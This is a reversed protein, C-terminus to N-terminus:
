LHCVKKSPAVGKYYEMMKIAKAKLNEATIGFYKYVDKAPGSVGFTEIGIHYHSYKVWTAGPYPEFSLVPVTDTLVSDQYGEDQENFLQNCPMSVVRIHNDKLEKAVSIATAVESGSSVIILEPKTYPYNEYIIYAGKSVLEYSSGECPSVNQRTLILFTPKDMTKMAVAYAGAVENGDCPRIVLTNPIVRIQVLQEIPQHTPGDEGVGISDHTMIYLTPIKCLSALRVSGIAYNIFSFFTSCYPRFGGHAYLGNCIAAMGHERIGFYIFNGKRNTKSFVTNDKLYVNTSGTLDASGGVIEPMISALKNLMMGSFVRTAKTDNIPLLELLSKEWEKPLEGNIRRLLEKAKEPYKNTYNQFLIEWQKALENGKNVKSKYYAYVENDIHFFEEPNLGLKIKADKVCDKGLPAGHSSESGQKTSGYGITTNIKIISPKDTCQQSLIISQKISDLDNDGDRVEHVDWNMSEFKKLIDETFCLDTSGDITIGNSDYLVILKGLGLHGALSAAETTMGEELCGDGCIVYTYHDVLKFDPQNYNAALNAEAIAMGVGSALGQGLPGTTIEVGETTGLEPHGPTKSGIQRFQKLNDMSLNYGTLHLM